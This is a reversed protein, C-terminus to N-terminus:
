EECKSSPQIGKEKGDLSNGVGTENIKKLVRVGSVLREKYLELTTAKFHIFLEGSMRGAQLNRVIIFIDQREPLFPRSNGTRLINSCKFQCKRHARLPPGLHKNLPLLYKSNRFPGHKVVLWIHMRRILIHSPPLHNLRFQAILLNIFRLIAIQRSLSNFTSQTRWFM